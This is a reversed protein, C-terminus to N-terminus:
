SKNIKFSKNKNNVNGTPTIPPHDGADLGKNPKDIGTSLIM